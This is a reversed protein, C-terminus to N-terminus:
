DRRARGASDIRGAPDYTLCQQFDGPRAIAVPQPPTDGPSAKVAGVAPAYGAETISLPQGHENYAFRTQHERGPVVSSRVILIPRPDPLKFAVATAEVNTQEATTAYEYRTWDIRQAKGAVYRYRTEKIPRSAADFERRTLCAVGPPRPRTM